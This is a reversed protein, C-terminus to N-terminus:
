CSAIYIRLAEIRKIAEKKGVIVLLDFVGPSTTVGTLALRIPQALAPLKINLTECLAKTLASLHTSDWVAAQELADRLALLYEPTKDTIWKTVGVQDYSTPQDHLQILGTIIDKLTKARSKYVAIAAETQERTFHSLQTDADILQNKNMYHLLQDDSMERLYVGNLWDLKDIDFVAGKKGVHDLEFFEVLQEPTFIEQDGHSWGLRVLYNNLADPLYGNARYDRVAVAADRKSLPQGSAGLILPLHAYTPITFGCAQNLMIQKPTNSIHDEGRIVHTVNMFADDVVVVFNYTPSGDSRAIIFDDLQDPEITISGRIIDDFTIPSQEDPVKFRVVFPKDIDGSVSRCHRDYKYLDGTVKQREAVEDQTCYCRYAKGQDLLQNIIKKHVDIRTSQIVVPEDSTIGSWELSEMISDAFEQTSRELDTDELRVLFVGKNHRAFLWNFLATRLNGIHLHGTPSPAFRVRISSGSM